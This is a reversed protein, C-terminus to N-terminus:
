GSVVLKTTLSYAGPRVKRSSSAVPGNDASSAAQTTRSIASAMVGICACPIKWSRSLGSVIMMVAVPFTFITPRSM